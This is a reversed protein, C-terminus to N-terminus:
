QERLDYGRDVEGHGALGGRYGQRVDAFLVACFADLELVCEIQETGRGGEDGDVLFRNTDGAHGILVTSPRPGGTDARGGIKESGIFVRM